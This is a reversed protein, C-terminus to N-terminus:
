VFCIINVKFFSAKLMEIVADTDQVTIPGYQIESAKETALQAQATMKAQGLQSLALIQSLQLPLPFLLCGNLEILNYLQIIQPADSVQHPFLESAIIRSSDAREVSVEYEIYRDNEHGGVHPTKYYDVLM